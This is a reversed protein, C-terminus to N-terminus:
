EEDYDLWRFDIFKDRKTANCSRCLIQFNEISHLKTDDTGWSLPIVHDLELRKCAGCALCQEGYLSTLIQWYDNPINGLQDLKVARRKRQTNRNSEPSGPYLKGCDKCYARFGDGADARYFETCQKINGCGPCKKFDGLTKKDVVNHGAQFWGNNEKIIKYKLGTPRNPYKYQCIKSCRKGRGSALRKASVLFYKNCPCQKLVKLVRRGDIKM